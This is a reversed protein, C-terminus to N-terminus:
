LPLDRERRTREVTAQSNRRANGNDAELRVIDNQYLYNVLKNAEVISTGMWQALEDIACYGEKRTNTFQFLKHDVPVWATPGAYLIGGFDEKRLQLKSNFQLHIGSAIEIEEPKEIQSIPLQSYDCYPDPKTLAGNVRLAEIKCGGGCRLKLRCDKCETPIWQDNRWEDMALWARRLGDTISGYTQSAHSCPRIQGDYGITCNTKAASCFRKAGFLNRTISNGFACSPYFEMSDVNMGLEDKVHLLEGMLFRFEQISLSYRSFDQCNGPVTAKTASFNKVGLGAIHQATRFVDRVNLKTVVMNATVNLGYKLALEIGHTTLSLAERKQTIQDNLRANGSPLSTLISAIELDKLIRAKKETLLSLNSNISIRIGSEQLRQLSPKIRNLVLLPEGGTVTVMFVQNSIIETVVKDYWKAPDLTTEDGAESRWHNYCHVCRYNCKPTVEWQVYVPSSLFRFM